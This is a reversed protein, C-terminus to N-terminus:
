PLETHEPINHNKGVRSYQPHAPVPRMLQEGHVGMISLHQPSMRSEPPLFPFFTLLM